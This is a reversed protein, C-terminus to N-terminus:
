DILYLLSCANRLRLGPRDTAAGKMQRHRLLWVTTVSAQGGEDFRAYLEGTCPKGIDEVGLSTGSQDAEPASATPQADERGRANESQLVRRHLEPPPRLQKLRAPEPETERDDPTFAGPHAGPDTLQKTRDKIRQLSRKPPEVHPYRKDSKRSRRLHFQFGLFGFSEKQADVIRTKTGSIVSAAAPFPSVSSRERSGPWSPPLRYGGNLSERGLNSTLQTIPRPRHPSTCQEVSARTHTSGPTPKSHDAPDVRAATRSRIATNRSTSRFTKPAYVARGTEPYRSIWSSRTHCTWAGM